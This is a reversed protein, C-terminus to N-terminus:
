DSPGITPKSSSGSSGVAEMWRSGAGCISYIPYSCVDVHVCLVPVKQVSNLVVGKVVGTAVFTRDAGTDLLMQVRWGNLNGQKIYKYSGKNWAINDCVGAFM